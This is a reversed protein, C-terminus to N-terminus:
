LISDITLNWEIYEVEKINLLITLLVIYIAKTLTLYFTKKANKNAITNEIIILKEPNLFITKM